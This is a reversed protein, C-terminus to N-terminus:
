LWTRWTWAADPAVIRGAFTLVFVFLAATVVVICWLVPAESILFWLAFLLSLV